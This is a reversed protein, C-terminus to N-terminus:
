LVTLRDDNNFGEFTITTKFSHKFPVGARLGYRRNIRRLVNPPSASSSQRLVDDNELYDWSDFAAYPEVYFQYPFDKRVKASASKYFSGTQFGAYAHTLTRNFNFFSFGLYINSIDRTAIVGGFDVQFNQQPRRTM